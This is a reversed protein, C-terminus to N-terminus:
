GGVLSQAKERGRKESDPTGGFVPLEEPLGIKRSVKRRCGAGAGPGPGEGSAKMVGEEDRAERERQKSKGGGSGKRSREGVVEWIRGGM